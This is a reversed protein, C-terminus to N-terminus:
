CPLGKYSHDNVTGVRGHAQDVVIFIAGCM